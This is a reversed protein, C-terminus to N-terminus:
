SILQTNIKIKIQKKFGEIYTKVAKEKRDNLMQEKLMKVVQKDGSVQELNSDVVSLDVSLYILRRMKVLTLEQRKSSEYEEPTIRNLRLRNLYVDKDFVGDRMFAPDHIIAEQLEADSIHIGTEKAAILLVREDIMSDLVKEKLNMKKEMEEDFKDKYIEKYFRFVRDYTRWYEDTTIKYKGVEAIIERGGTKDVRGVGWFIFSLIVIFFLVYFYKANKRMMKLM